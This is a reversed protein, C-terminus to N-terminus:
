RLVLAKWRRQQQESQMALTQRRIENLSGREHNSRVVLRPKQKTVTEYWWQPEDQYKITKLGQLVRSLPPVATNQVSITTSPTHPSSSFATLPSSCATHPPPILATASQASPWARHSRASPAINSCPSAMEWRAVTKERGRELKKDEM